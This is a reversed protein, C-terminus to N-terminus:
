VPLLWSRYAVTLGCREDYRIYDFFHHKDRNIQAGMRTLKWVIIYM